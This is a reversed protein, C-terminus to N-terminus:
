KLRRYLDKQLRCVLTFFTHQVLVFIPICSSAFISSITRVGLIQLDGLIPPGLSLGKWGLPLDAGTVRSNPNPLTWLNHSSKWCKDSINFVLFNNHLLLCLSQVCLALRVTSFTKTNPLTAKNSKQQVASSQILLLFCFYHAKLAENLLLIFNM